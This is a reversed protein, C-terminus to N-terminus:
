EADYDSEVGNKTMWVEILAAVLHTRYDTLLAEFYTEVERVVRLSSATDPKVTLVTRAAILPEIREAVFKRCPEPTGLEVMVDDINKMSAAKSNAAGIQGELFFKADM